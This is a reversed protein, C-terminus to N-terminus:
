GYRSVSFVKVGGDGVDEVLYMGMMDMPIFDCMYYFTAKIAEDVELSSHIRLAVERFFEETNCSKM